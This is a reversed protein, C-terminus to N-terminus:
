ARIPLTLSFPDHLSGDIAELISISVWWGRLSNLCVIDYDISRFSVTDLAVDECRADYVAFTFAKPVDDGDLGNGNHLGGLSGSCHIFDVTSTRYAPRM